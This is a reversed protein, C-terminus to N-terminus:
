TNLKLPYNLRFFTQGHVAMSFYSEQKTNSIWASIEKPQGPLRGLAVTLPGCKQARTDHSAQARECAFSKM